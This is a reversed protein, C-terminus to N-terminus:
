LSVFLSSSLRSSSSFLLLPSSLPSSSPSFPSSSFPPLLLLPYLGPICTTLSQDYLYINSSFFLPFSSLFLPLPPPSPPPPPYIGPICTQLSQDYFYINRQPGAVWQYYGSGVVTYSDSALTYLYFPSPPLSPSCFFFLLPPLPLSLPIGYYDAGGIWFTLNPYARLIFQQEEKSNIAVIYGKGGLYTTSQSAAAGFTVTRNVLTYNHGNFSAPLPLPSPSSSFSPSPPSILIM